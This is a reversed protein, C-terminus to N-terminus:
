VAWVSHILGVTLLLSTYIRGQLGFAPMCIVPEQTNKWM